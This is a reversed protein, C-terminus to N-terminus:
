GDIYRTENTETSLDNTTKDHFVLIRPILRKTNPPLNNIGDSEKIVEILAEWSELSDHRCRSCYAVEFPAGTISPLVKVNEESKCVDCIKKM